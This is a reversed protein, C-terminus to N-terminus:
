RMPAGEAIVRKLRGKGCKRMGHRGFRGGVVDRVFDALGAADRTFAGTLQDRTRKQSAPSNVAVFFSDGFKMEDFPYVSSSHPIVFAEM